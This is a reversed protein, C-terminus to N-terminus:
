AAKPLGNPYIFRQSVGDWFAVIDRSRPLQQWRVDNGLSDIYASDADSLLAGGPGYLAVWHINAYAWYATGDKSGIEMTAPLSPVETGATYTFAAGDLSAGVQSSSWTGCLTYDTGATASWAPMAARVVGATRRQVVLKNTPSDEALSIRNSNDTEWNWFRPYSPDNSSGWAPRARVVVAGSTESMGTSPLQIRGATASATSGETFIFPTMIAGTEHQFGWVILNGSGSSWPTKGEGGFNIDSRDEGVDTTYTLSVRTPTTTATLTGSVTASGWVLTNTRSIRYDLTGTDTWVWASATYTTSASLSSLRQYVASTSGDLVVHEATLLGSIPDAYQDATGKTVSGVVWAANTLDKSWLGVNTRAGYIGTMRQPATLGDGETGAARVADTILDGSVTLSRYRLGRSMQRLATPAVV